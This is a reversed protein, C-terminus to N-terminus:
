AQQGSLVVALEADALAVVIVPAGEYFRADRV